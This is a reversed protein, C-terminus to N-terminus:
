KAPRTRRKAGASSKEASAASAASAGSASAEDAHPTPAASETGQSSKKRSTPTKITVQEDEYENELAFDQSEPVLHAQKDAMHMLKEFVFM